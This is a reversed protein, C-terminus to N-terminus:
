FKYGVTLSLVNNRAVTKNRVTQGPVDVANVSEYIDILGYSYRADAFIHNTIDYGLGANLAMDISKFLESIDDTGSRRFSEDPFEPSTYNTKYKEKASLLIGVQPGAEVHLGKHVYYKVMVPITLYNLNWKEDYEIFVVNEVTESVDIKAGQESYLLELQVFLKESAKIEAFGGAHFGTKMSNDTYSKGTFTSFNAGAKIGFRTQAQMLGVVM